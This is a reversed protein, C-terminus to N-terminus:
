IDPEASIRPTNTPCTEHGQYVHRKWVRTTMFLHLGMEWM